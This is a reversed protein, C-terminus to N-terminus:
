TRSNLTRPQGLSMRQAKLEKSLISDRGIGPFNLFGSPLGTVLQKEPGHNEGTEALGFLLSDDSVSWIGAINLSPGEFGVNEARTILDTCLYPAMSFRKLRTRSQAVGHLLRGPEETWPIRRALVSSHTARGEELPDERGLSRDWM